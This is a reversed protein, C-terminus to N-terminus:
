GILDDDLLDEEDTPLKRSPEPKPDIQVPKSDAPLEKKGKKSENKKGEIEEFLADESALTEETENENYLYKDVAKIQDASFAPDSIRCLRGEFDLAVAKTKEDDRAKSPSVFVKTAPNDGNLVVALANDADALIQQSGAYDETNVTVEKLQDDNVVKSAKKRIEKTSSNKLQLATFTVLNHMKGYAMLRKHVNALDVDYRGITHTEVGIVQLYDVILVDITQQNRLKDVEYLIKTLPTNQVLQICHLNPRNKELDKAAEQFKSYWYDTLGKPTTGGIKIRNYDTLAHLSLLRRFFVDARKELSVYVINYGQLAMNYAFNMLLTTKGGGILGSVVTYSGREFGNYINDIGRINCRIADKREPNKRRDEIYVIANKVGESFSMTLSYPDPNLNHISNLESIFKKVMEGHGSISQIIKNGTKWYEYFQWLLYRDNINAILLSYDESSADHRNWIKDWNNKCAAKEEEGLSEQMDILSDMASRTLLSHYKLFNKYMMNYLFNNKPILFHGPKGGETPKIGYAIAAALCDKDKLLINLLRPEEKEALNMLEENPLINESM